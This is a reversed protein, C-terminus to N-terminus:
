ETVRVPPQGAVILPDTLTVLVLVIVSVDAAPVSACVFHILVGMVLIVYAVVPAVPAANLPKGGPTVPAQDALTTVM